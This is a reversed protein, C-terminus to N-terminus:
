KKTKLLATFQWFAGIVLFGYSYISVRLALGAHNIFLLFATLVLFVLGLVVSVRGDIRFVAILLFWFTFILTKGSISPGLPFYRYYLFFMGLLLFFITLFKKSRLFSKM